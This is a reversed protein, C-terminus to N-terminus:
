GTSTKELGPVGSSQSNPRSTALGTAWSTGDPVASLLPGDTPRGQPARPASGSTAVPGAAAAGTRKAWGDGLRQEKEPRRAEPVQAQVM